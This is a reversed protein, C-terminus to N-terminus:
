DESDKDSRMPVTGQNKETNPNEDTVDRVDALPSIEEVLRPPLAPEKHSMDSGINPSDDYAVRQIQRTYDHAALLATTNDRIRRVLAEQDKTLPVERDQRLNHSHEQNKLEVPATALRIPAPSETREQLAAESQLKPVFQAQQDIPIFSTEKITVIKPIASQPAHISDEVKKTAHDTARRNLTELDTGLLNESNKPQKKEFLHKQMRQRDFVRESERSINDIHLAYNAEYSKKYFDLSEIHKVIMPLVIEKQQQILQDFHKAVREKNVQSAEVVKDQFNKDRMFQQQYLTEELIVKQFFNRFFHTTEILQKDLDQKWKVDAIRKEYVQDFVKLENPKKLENVYPSELKDKFQAAVRHLHELRGEVHFSMFERTDLWRKEAVNLFMYHYSLTRMYVREFLLATFYASIRDQHAYAEVISDELNLRYLQWRALAAKVLAREKQMRWFENMLPTLDAAFTKTRESIDTMLAPPFGPWDRQNPPPPAKEPLHSPESFAPNPRIQSAFSDIDIALPEPIKKVM